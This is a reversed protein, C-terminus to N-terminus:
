GMNTFMHHENSVNYLYASVTQHKSFNEDFLGFPRHHFILRSISSKIMSERSDYSMREKNSTTNLGSREFRRVLGNIGFYRIPKAV